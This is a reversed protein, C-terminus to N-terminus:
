KNLLMEKETKVKVSYHKVKRFLPHFIFFIIKIIIYMWLLIM